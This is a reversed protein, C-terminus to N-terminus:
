RVRVIRTRVAPGWGASSRAAVVVRVRQGARLRGVTARRHGARVVVSRKGVTIRYATVRGRAPARWTVTVKKRGPAARVTRVASPRVAPAATAPPTASPAPTATPGPTPAPSADTRRIEVATVEGGLQLPVATGTTRAMPDASTSPRYVTADSVSPLTLTVAAPDVASRQQTVPDWLSVDRWLLLVFTGDRKETLLYRADSPLGPALLPLSDTTFAPGPDDLLGLLNKMATFAPKPTFDTHLLGFESEPDTRTPDPFEDVLEYSYMRKEGRGLHELLLRPLYEGAVDEPVAPHSATAALANHYGAETTVLPRGPASARAAAGIQPIQNSPPYGGPYMHANALDASASVDGLTAYNWKYALAPALVPLDATAPEAHAAAYLQQQWARAEAAWDDRGSLDWENVGELSEVAGAPLQDAVTRVYTSVPVPDTPRGMILDFGIGQAAVRRIAAYQWPAALFLDDRVHRVGLDVLADTVKQSDRYPTDLFNLHVGVGYGDVISDAPVAKVRVAAPSPAPDAAATGGAVPVAALVAVAACLVMSVVVRTRRM